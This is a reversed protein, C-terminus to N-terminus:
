ERSPEIEGYIDETLLQWRFDPRNCGGPGSLCAVSGHHLTLGGPKVYKRVLYQDDPSVTETSSPESATVVVTDIRDVFGERLVLIMWVGPSNPASLWNPSM